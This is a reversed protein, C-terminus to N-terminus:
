ECHVTDPREGRGLVWRYVQEMDRAVRSWAFHEMALKRGRMGATRRQQPTMGLLTTLGWAVGEPSPRIEIAAGHQFGADLHCEATMLVPLGSAWAELVAIPLGESVSPLIFASAAALSRAKEEGFQPGVFHVHSQIQLSSAMGALERCHGEPGWGAVVLHWHSAILRQRQRAFGRLLHVLGKQPAIRGLFLLISAEAPIGARWAPPPAEAMEPVAVGNPIICVPNKLGAARIAQLEADCLAHLCAAGRLVVRQYAHWGLQKKWRRHALAWPDLQGHPSVVYPRRKRVASGRTAVSPYMWLGHLHLLDAPERDLAQGFRPAYGFSRPGRTPYTASTVGDLAPDHAGLGLVSVGMGSRRALAPALGSVATFIGGSQHSLWGMTMAVRLREGCQRAPSAGADGCAQEIGPVGARVM